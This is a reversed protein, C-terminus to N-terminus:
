GRHFQYWGTAEQPQPYQDDKKLDGFIPSSSLFGQTHSTQASPAFPPQSPDRQPLLDSPKLDTKATTYSRSTGFITPLPATMQCHGDNNQRVAKSEYLGRTSVTSWSKSSGFALTIPAPLSTTPIESPRSRATAADDRVGVIEKDDVVPAVSAENLAFKRGQKWDCSNAITTINARSDSEKRERQAFTAFYTNAHFIFDTWRHM